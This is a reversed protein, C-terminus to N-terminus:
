RTLYAKLHFPASLHGEINALKVGDPLAILPILENLNNLKNFAQASSNAELHEIAQKDLSM